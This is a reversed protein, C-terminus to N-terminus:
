LIRFIGIYEKPQNPLLTGGFEIAIKLISDVEEKSEAAHSLIVRSIKSQILNILSRLSRVLYLVLSLDGEM